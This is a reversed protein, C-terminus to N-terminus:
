TTAVLRCGHGAEEYKICQLERHKNTQEFLEVLWCGPDAVFPDGLVADSLCKLGGGCANSFFCKECGRSVRHRDRLAILFDQKRYIEEMGQQLVNGVVRPMRRCPLLDGNPLLTLLSWGASCRYPKQGTVLFQLARHMVIQTSHKSNKNRELKMIELFELTEQPSMLLELDSSGQGLPVLRDAWVKTVGLERGAQAVRPFDHYNERHATFSIQTPINKKILQSIGCIARKYNGQGRIRNHSEEPGDISVQVFSPKLLALRAAIKEDILTGNTLISFSIGESQLIECFAFLQAFILPEGGTLTLHSRVQGKGHISQLFFMLEKFQELISLLEEFGLAGTKYAETSQYCHSCRLNCQELLHWQLLMHRPYEASGSHTM